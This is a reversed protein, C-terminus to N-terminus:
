IPYNADFQILTYDAPKAPSYKIFDIYSNQYIFATTIDSLINKCMKTTHRLTVKFITLMVFIPVSAKIRSFFVVCFRLSKVIGNFHM